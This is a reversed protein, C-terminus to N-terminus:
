SNNKYRKMIEVLIGSRVIDDENFEHFAINDIGDFREFADELGSKEGAKLDIDIQDTDGMIIMKSNEGLRSIYLKLGNVTLNQAEDMIAICNDFTSGREYALIKEQIFENRQLNNTAEKGILKEINSIFSSLYPSIKEKENGPLYGLSEDGAEQIPKSIFLNNYEEQSKMLQLAAKLAIYTKGSGAPGKVFVVKNERIRNILKKQKNTKEETNPNFHISEKLKRSDHQKLEENMNYLDVEEQQEPSLKKSNKNGNRKGM